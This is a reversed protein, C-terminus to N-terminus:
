RSPGDVSVVVGRELTAVTLQTRDSNVYYYRELLRGGQMATVRATPEGYKALIQVGTAGLPLDNRSPFPSGMPVDVETKSGPLDGITFNSMVRSRGVRDPGRKTSTRALKADAKESIGSHVVAPASPSAWDPLWRRANWVGVAVLGLLGAIILVEM